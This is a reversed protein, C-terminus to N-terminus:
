GEAIASLPYFVEGTRPATTAPKDRSVDNEDFGVAEECEDASTCYKSADLLVEGLKCTPRYVAVGTGAILLVYRDILDPYRTALEDKVIDFHDAKM